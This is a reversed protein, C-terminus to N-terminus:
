PGGPLAAPHVARAIGLVEDWAMGPAHDGTRDARDELLGVLARGFLLGPPHDLAEPWAEGCDGLQQGLGLGVQEGVEREALAM